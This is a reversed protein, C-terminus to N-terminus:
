AGGRISDLQPHTHQTNCPDRKHVPAQGAEVGRGDHGAGGQQRPAVCRQQPGGCHGEDEKHDAAAKVGVVSHQLRLGPLLGDICSTVCRKTPM